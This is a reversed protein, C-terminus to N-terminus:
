SMTRLPLSIPEARDKDMPGVCLATDLQEADTCRFGLRLEAEEEFRQAVAGWGM